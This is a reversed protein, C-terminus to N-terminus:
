VRWETYGNWEEENEHWDVHEILNFFCPVQLVQKQYLSRQDLGYISIPCYDCNEIVECFHIAENPTM